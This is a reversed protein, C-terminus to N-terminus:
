KVKIYNKLSDYTETGLRITHLINNTSNFFINSNEDILKGKRSISNRTLSGQGLLLKQHVQKEELHVLDNNYFYLKDNEYKIVIGTKDEYSPIISDFGFECAQNILKELSSDMRYFYDINYYYTFDFINSLEAKKVVESICKELPDQNNIKYIMDVHDFENFYNKADEKEPLILAIFIKLKSKNLSELIKRLNNEENILKMSVICLIHQNEPRMTKPLISGYPKFNKKIVDFTTKSRSNNEKNQHIGHHHFVVSESCYKILFGESQQQHAWIRDEINSVEENFQNSKWRDFRILSSANHFFSDSKQIRSEESFTIFLDRSNSPNSFPLPVQRSYVGAIKSSEYFCKVMENLWLNNFPICHASLIAIYKASSNSIGLNLAKGPNYKDIFFIKKVGMKKAIEVTRDSSNNDVLILEIDKILQNQVAEISHRIWREENFTRIIISVLKEKGM